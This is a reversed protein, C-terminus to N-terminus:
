SGVFLDFASYLNVGGAGGLGAGQTSLCFGALSPDSPILATFDVLGYGFAPPLQLLEGGASTPDILLFGDAAPLYQELPYAYGMVGAVFSGTTSNDVTATWVEGMVPPFAYYRFPNTGGADNRWQVHASAGEVTFVYAAGAGSGQDDDWPMGVLATTGDLAVFRGFDEYAAGDAATLKAHQTWLWATRQFVYAAGAFTGQDSDLPTGILATDGRLAVSQGFHDGGGVTIGRIRAQLSWASGSQVFAYVSGADDGMVDERPAGVLATDGHVSTSYGFNDGAAGVPAVLKAQQSWTTGTRVFVYASGSDPGHVDDGWAGVLATDGDLSVSEGLWAYAVPDNATLKAQLSWSTGSRVYVYAAGYGYGQDGHHPAGVLATDGDVSAASGFMDLTIGDPATLKAQRSWSTGSRVFVYAAGADVGIDDDGWAGAIATEGDLSVAIGLRDYYEGESATLKAQQIWTTGSRVHVYAAGANEAMENDRYAGVLATDGDIAVVHGFFDYAEGGSPLLKAQQVWIWPDITIPYAAGEDEVLISLGHLDARLHADLERGIADWARLGTYLVQTGDARTFRADREGALVECAFGGEVALDLRLPATVSGRSPPEDVTFGQEVGREDNVYWEVVPGRDIEIRRGDSAVSGRVVPRLVDGRGWAALHLDLSWRSREAEGMRIEVGDTSVFAELPSDQAGVSTGLVVVAALTTGVGLLRFSPRHSM